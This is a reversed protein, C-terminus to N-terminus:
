LNKVFKEVKAKSYIEQFATNYDENKKEMLMSARLEDKVDELKDVKKDEVKIIHYGYQSKVLESIEGPKLAFAAAEFTEVMDGHRFYGLDGSNEKASPDTSYEKALSNFDEGAKVRELIKQAEEETELLIHSAKVRNFMDLHTNYFVAVEEETIQVNETMNEKLKNIILDKRISDVFYEEDMKVTELFEKFKEDSDFMNRWKDVEADVEEQTLTLKLEDAKKLQIKDQIMQELIHEKALDIYKKGEYTKDWVEPGQRMEEQTKFVEFMKDFQEKSIIEGDVKAVISKDAESQNVKVLGCGSLLLAVIVAYILLKLHKM